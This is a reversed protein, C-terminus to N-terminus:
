DDSSESGDAFRPNTRAGLSRAVGPLLMENSRAGSRSLHGGMGDAVSPTPLLAMTETHSGGRTARPTPLLADSNTQSRPTPSIQADSTPTLASEEADGLVFDEQTTSDLPTAVHLVASPLMQDGSSGRQNPGGKTGDTARPTPLLSTVEELSPGGTGNRQKGSNQNSATPTPLLEVETELRRKPNGEDIERQSPGHQMSVRPTPLLYEVEIGNGNIGKKLVEQRRAEWTEYGEGDQTVSANPTPLLRPLSNLDIQRSKSDIAEQSRMRGGNGMSADPTPLLSSEPAVTLPGSTARVYLRGSRMSGSSPFTESFEVLHESFLDDQESEWLDRSPNWNAIPRRASHEM